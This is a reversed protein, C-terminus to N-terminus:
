GGAFQPGLVDELVATVADDDGVYLVITRGTVYFHPTEVWTVMTTGISTGTTSVLATAAEAAAASEYTFVQVDAGNVKVVQGKVSFFDQAIEGAAQVTAGAARLNDVLSTYGTVPGGSSVPPSTSPRCAAV